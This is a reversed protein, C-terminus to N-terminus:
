KKGTSDVIVAFIGADPADASLTSGEVKTELMQWDSGNVKFYGIKANAPPNNALEIKVTGPMFPKNDAVNLAYVKGTVDKGDPLKPVGSLDNVLTFGATALKQRLDDSVGTTDTSNSSVGKVTYTFHGDGSTLVGLAVDPKQFHWTTVMNYQTRGKIIHLNLTGNEVGQDFVCHLPDMTNGRSCTGFLVEQKYESQKNTKLQGTVGRDISGADPESPDVSRYALEYSIGDYESVRTINLNIANGDRRPALLAYPGNADFPLDVQQLPGQPKNL